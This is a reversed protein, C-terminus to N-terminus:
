NFWVLGILLLPLLIGGSLCLLATRRRGYRFAMVLGIIVTAVFCLSMATVLGQMYVSSLTNPQGTKLAHGTHLTSLLTLANNKGFSPREWRYTQWIGSVAFFLLLPAFLCGLYLHLARLTKM